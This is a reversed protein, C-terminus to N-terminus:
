GIYRNVDVAPCLDETNPTGFEVIRPRKYGAADRSESSTTQGVPQPDVLAANVPTPNGSWRRPVGVDM